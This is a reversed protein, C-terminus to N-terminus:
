DIDITTCSLAKLFTIIVNQYRVTMRSSDSHYLLKSTENGLWAKSTTPPTFDVTFGNSYANIKLGARNVATVIFRYQVGRQLNSGIFILRSLLKTWM